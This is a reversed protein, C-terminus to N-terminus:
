SVVFMGKFIKVSPIVCLAAKVFSIGVNQTVPWVYIIKLALLDFNAVM